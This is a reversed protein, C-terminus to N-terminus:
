KRRRRFALVALGLLGLGGPEPIVGEPASPTVDEILFANLIPNNDYASGGPAVSFSLKDDPAVLEHTYVAGSHQPQTWEGTVARADLEDVALAGEVQVDFLRHEDPENWYNETWLLQMKYTRGATVDLEVDVSRPAGSWRISHLMGELANDDATPGLDPRSSWPDARNQATVSCGAVSDTTFAADGIVPTTSGGVNVAYTIDGSFDLESADAFSSVSGFHVVQASAGGALLFGCLVACTLPLTRKAM